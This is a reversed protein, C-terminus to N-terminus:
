TPPRSAPPLREDVKMFVILRQLDKTSKQISMQYSTQLKLKKVVRITVDCGIKERAVFKWSSRIKMVFVALVAFVAFILLAIGISMDQNRPFAIAVYTEIFAIIIGAAVLGFVIRMVTGSTDPNKNQQPLESLGRLIEAKRQLGFFTQMELM